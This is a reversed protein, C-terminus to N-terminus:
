HADLIVYIKYKAAMRVIALIKNLYTIDVEGKVPMGAEFSVHLRIVNFGYNM